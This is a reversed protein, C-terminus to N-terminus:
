CGFTDLGAWGPAQDFFRKLAVGTTRASFELPEDFVNGTFLIKGGPVVHKKMSAADRLSLADLFRLFFYKAEEDEVPASPRLAVPPQGGCSALAFLGLGACWAAATQKARSVSATGIPEVIVAH